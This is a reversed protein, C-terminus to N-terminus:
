SNWLEKLNVPGWVAPAPKRGARRATRLDNAVAQLTDALDLLKDEDLEIGVELVEGTAFTLRHTGADSTQVMYGSPSLDRWLNSQRITKMGTKM